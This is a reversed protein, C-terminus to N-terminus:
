ADQLCLISRFNERFLDVVVDMEEESVSGQRHVAISRDTKTGDEYSTDNSYPFLLLVQGSVVTGSRVLYVIGRLWAYGDETRMGLASRFPYQESKGAKAALLIAEIDSELSHAAWNAYFTQLRDINKPFFPKGWRGATAEHVQRNSM